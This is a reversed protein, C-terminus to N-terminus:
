RLCFRIAAPYGLFCNRVPHIDRGAGPHDQYHSPTNVGDGRKFLRRLAFRIAAPGGLFCTRVPHIDRGAM